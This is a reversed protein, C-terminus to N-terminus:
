VKHEDAYEPLGQSEGKFRVSAALSLVLAGDVSLREFASLASVVYRALNPDGEQPAQAFSLM